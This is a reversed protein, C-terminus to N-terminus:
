FSTDNIDYNADDVNDKTIPVYDIIVKHGTVNVGEMGISETTVEEGKTLLYMVKYVAKGLKVPNNLSTGLMTGNKIAECGAATADVGVVPIYNSDDTLYGHAQLAAIAGLAEDDNDALICDIDDGYASLLAEVNEQAEQRQFDCIVGTISDGGKVGTVDEGGINTGLTYGAAEIAALSYSSRNITDSFTPMGQLLIFDVKGNGNRDWNDHSNFYDVIENGMNQGSQESASSVYWLKDYNAFDEDSPSTTNAFITTIDEKKAAEVIQSTAANNINNLVFFDPHQTFINNMNNDQITTDNQSDADTVTVTGDAKSVNNLVARANSIFTDAFNYWVVGATAHASGDGAGGAATSTTSSAAATSAAASSSGCGAIMAATLIGVAAKKILEM